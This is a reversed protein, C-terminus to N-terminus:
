APISCGDLTRGLLWAVLARLVKLYGHSLIMTHFVREPLHNSDRDLAIREARYHGAVEPLSRRRGVEIHSFWASLSEAANM